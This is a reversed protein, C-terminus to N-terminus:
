NQNLLSFNHEVITRTLIQPLIVPEKSMDLPYLLYLPVGARGYSKLLSTIKSDGKTWDAKVYVINYRELVADFNNGSLVVFENVKCVMCWAATVNVFVHRGDQRHRSISFQKDKFLERNGTPSYKRIITASSSASLDPLLLITCVSVVTIFVIRTKLRFQPMGLIWSAIGVGTLLIWAALVGDSGSQLSLIWVLWGVTLYFPFALAHKLTETWRGPAPLMRHAFDTWSLIAIPAAFGFGLTIFIIFTELNSRTLAYGIAAGMFPATCPTAAITTFIGTFFSNFLRYRRSWNEGVGVVDTGVDFVGSMSLGLAFFLLIMFLVFEPTQFQFGWGVTTGISKCIVVITALITFCTMVGALYGVGGRWSEAGSYKTLSIIKLSLIPLVCPMLNLIAGGLVAFILAHWITFPLEEIAHLSDSTKTKKVFDTAAIIQSSLLYSSKLQESGVYKTLVLLGSLTKRSINPSLLEGPKLILTLSDDKLEFDQSGAHDIMGWSDAFFQVNTIHDSVLDKAEVQLRIRDTLEISVPWPLSIPMNRRATDFATYFQSKKVKSDSSVPLTITLTIQEPICIKECALWNANATISIQREKFDSPPTVTVPLMIEDYYGYNMLQGVPIAKPVPWSIESVAFNEPMQWSVQIPKGSDGPNKWYTHWKPTIIQHLALKFPRGPAIHTVDSVLTTQVKLALDATQANQAMSLSQLMFTFIGILTYRMM